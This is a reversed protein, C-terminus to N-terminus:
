FMGIPLTYSFSEGHTLLIDAPMYKLIPKPNSNPEIILTFELSRSAHSEQHM